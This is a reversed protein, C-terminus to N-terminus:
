PTEKKPLPAPAAPMVTSTPTAPPLPTAADAAPEVPAVTRAKPALSMRVGGTFLMQKGNDLIKATAASLTETGTNVEVRDNTHMDGKDLAMDVTPTTIRYGDSTVVDVGGELRLTQATGDFIGIPATLTIWRRDQMEVRGSVEEFRVKKANDFSQVGRKAVMEYARGQSRGSIHPDVMTVGDRTFLVNALGFNASFQTWAIWGVVALAVVGGLIPLWLRLRRVRLSHRAAADRARNVPRPLPAASRRGAPPRSAHERSLSSEPQM